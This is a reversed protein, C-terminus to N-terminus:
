SVSTSNNNDWTLGGVSYFHTNITASTSSTAWTSWSSFNLPHTENCSGKAPHAPAGEKICM